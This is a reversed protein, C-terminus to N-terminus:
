RSVLTSTSIGITTLMGMIMTFCDIIGIECFSDTTARNPREVTIIMHANIRSTPENVSVDLVALPVAGTHAAYQNMTSDQTESMMADTM